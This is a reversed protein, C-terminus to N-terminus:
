DHMLILAVSYKSANGDASSTVYGLLPDCCECALTVYNWTFLAGCVTSSGVASSCEGATSAVPLSALVSVCEAGSAVLTTNVTANTISDTTVAVIPTTVCGTHTCVVAYLTHNITSNLGGVGITYTVTGNADTIGVVATGEDDDDVFVTVNQITGGNLAGPEDVGVTIADLGIVVVVPSTANAPTTEATDSTYVTGNSTM